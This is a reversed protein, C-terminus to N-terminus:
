AKAPFPRYLFSLVEDKKILDTLMKSCTETDNLHVLCQSIALHDPEPLNQYLKVLLRLVKNRFDLHQVITMSSDLVYSLLAEANGKQIAQELIDLRFSELAIGM